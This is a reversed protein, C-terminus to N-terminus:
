IQCFVARNNVFKISCEVTVSPRDPWYIQYGNNIEEFGIWRRIKSRGDLKTGDLTHVWVQSKQEHVNKLSPKKHYLMKYPTKGDPLAHTITRNKLWVIHNIAKGWLNKPLKSAHLLAHTCEL